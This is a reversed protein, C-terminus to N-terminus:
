ATAELRNKAEVCALVHRLVSRVHARAASEAAEEDRDELSNLLTEHERFSRVLREPSEEAIHQIWRVQAMIVARMASLRDSGCGHFVLEHVGDAVDRLDGAAVRTRLSDYHQRFQRVAGRELSGAALRFAIGELAERLLFVDRILDPTLEAVRVGKHPFYDVLGEAALKRLAERLPTRSVQFERALSEERLAEGPRRTWTLIEDRLRSTVDSQLIQASVVSTYM